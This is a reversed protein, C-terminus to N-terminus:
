VTLGPSPDTRADTEGEMRAVEKRVRQVRLRTREECLLQHINTLALLEAVKWSAAYGYAMFDELVDIREDLSNGVGSIFEVWEDDTM